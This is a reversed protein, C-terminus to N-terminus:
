MEGGLLGGIVAALVIDALVNADHGLRALAAQAVIQGSKRNPLTRTTDFATRFGCAVPVRRLRRGNWGYGVCPITGGLCLTWHLPSRFTGEEELGPTAWFELIVAFRQM